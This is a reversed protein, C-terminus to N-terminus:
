LAEVLREFSVLLSRKSRVLCYLSHFVFVKGSADIVAIHSITVFVYVFFHFIQKAGVTGSDFVISNRNLM